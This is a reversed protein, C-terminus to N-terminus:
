LLRRSRAPIVPFLYLFISNSLNRATQKSYFYSCLENLWSRTNAPQKSM